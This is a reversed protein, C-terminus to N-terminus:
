VNNKGNIRKIEEEIITGFTNNDLEFSEQATQSTDAFADFVKQKSELVSMIKEDVTDDCLLRYVLVNRTQGMRYARSVAQNEISPKFQPECLIVVSASQINLGTGGSQIQAVLVKGAPARDFGDIIAQRREPSVSGNIPETCRDGLLATVKRITDLFFSFVIVKRGDSEAEEVLEFLRAAKSSCSLDDVNWSVRRAEPYNKSLVAREYAEEEVRGLTCWEKTEILEPLETLVEERKRRYYVPAVAERFAPASSLAEMGRVRGAVDPQLINILSVMEDVRNELATGTMFLLREARGTLARVNKTRNAEPNKVYHAEDVVLMAIKFGEPLIFHGTTEYTTVAVGGNKIWTELEDARDWGHVETVFLDSMKAVERCWNTMVSAPCVVAFHTSGTNRLSVMAAIAQVTKGLGMEDGLLSKKQHLVYKVGWEQYRRLECKLGQLYLPEGSIEQALDGPLGYLTDDNGLIGPNVSELLNFFSVSNVSFMRWALDPGSKEIIDAQRFLDAATEGYDGESLAKLTNFAEEASQRKPTTALLWKFTGNVAELAATCSSVTGGYNDLLARCSETVPIRRIQKSLLTVLLTAEPTKSDESLRIKVGQRAKVAIAGATKKILRAAEDSIGNVAALSRVSAAAVDAVTAYGSDRLSKVRIGKKDRNLEDVSIEGLIKLVQADVLAGSAKRIEEGASDGCAILAKLKEVTERHAATLKKAEGRGFPRSM